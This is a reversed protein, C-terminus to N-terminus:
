AVANVGCNTTVKSYDIKGAAILTPNHTPAVPFIRPQGKGNFVVDVTKNYYQSRPRYAIHM